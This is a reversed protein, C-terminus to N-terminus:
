APTSLARLGAATISWGVEFGLRTDPDAEVLAPERLELARLIPAAPEGIAASVESVTAADDALAALARRERDSVELASM